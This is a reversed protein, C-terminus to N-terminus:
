KEPKINLKALVSEDLLHLIEPNNNIINVIRNIEDIESDTRSLYDLKGTVEVKLPSTFNFKPFNNLIEVIERKLKKIGAGEGVVYCWGRSRTLSVFFSNRTRPTHDDAVLQSNFLFVINSENGKARFPTTITIHDKPQFIDPSEIYGPIVSHIGRNTLVNRLSIMEHKNDGKSLNIIIIQEPAVKEEVILRHCENSIYDLQELTSDVEQVKILETIPKGNDTLLKELTNRSNSDPRELVVNVKEPISHTTPEIVNYGIANWASKEYFMHTKQPAYLGMAVGHATMLVPRPTRYCNPLTFDKPIEGEYNGKLSANLINPQGEANRGFLDEPERIVTDKLSQFEDYAWIIRKQDGDGKTLKYVAEFIEPAFDQAEDILVLDYIPTIRDGGKSLLDKYLSKLPDSSGRLQNFSLPKLGLTKCLESYLGAKAAGGWAHYIDIKNEFDPLLGTEAGYYKTILNQISKYLSQTNFLYLIKFDSYTSHTM